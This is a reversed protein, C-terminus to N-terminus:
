SARRPEVLEPCFLMPRGPYSGLKVDPHHTLVQEFALNLASEPFGHELEVVTPPENRGALLTPEVVQEVLARFESPVGPLIM